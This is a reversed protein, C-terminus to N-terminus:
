VTVNSDYGWHPKSDGWSAKQLGLLCFLTTFSTFNCVVFVLHRLFELQVGSYPLPHGFWGGGLCRPTLQTSVSPSLAHRQRWDFMECQIHLRLWLQGPQSINESWTAPLASISTCTPEPGCLHKLLRARPGRSHAPSANLPVSGQESPSRPILFWASCPLCLPAWRASRRLCHAPPGLPLRGTFTGVVLGLAFLHCAQGSPLVQRLLGLVLSLCTATGSEVQLCFLPWVSDVNEAMWPKRLYLEVKTEM